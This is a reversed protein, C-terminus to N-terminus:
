IVSLFIMKYIINKAKNEGLYKPWRNAGETRKTVRLFRVYLHVHTFVQKSLYIRMRNLSQSQSKNITREFSQSYLLRTNKKGWDFKKCTVSNPSPIHINLSPIWEIKLALTPLVFQTFVRYSFYYFFRCCDWGIWEYACRTV